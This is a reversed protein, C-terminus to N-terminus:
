RAEDERYQIHVDRPTKVELVAGISKLVECAFEPYTILDFREEKIRHMKCREFNDGYFIKFQASSM